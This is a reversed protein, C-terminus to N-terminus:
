KYFRILIGMTFDNVFHATITVLLNETLEFLYGIYFSVFLILIFLVVKKLYRIHVVAFLASAVVYGFITQIVGRFLLEEAVAVLMALLAINGVSRNSFIRKNIGGDDYFRSPFVLMFVIDVAVIIFGPIIGYYCIAQIDWAFYHGWESLDDFLFFSLLVLDSSCVDSSWDRKS